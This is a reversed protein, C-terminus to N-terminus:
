CALRRMVSERCWTFGMRMSTSSRRSRWLASAGRRTNSRSSSISGRSRRLRSRRSPGWCPGCPRSSIRRRWGKSSSNPFCNMWRKQYPKVLKSQFREGEPEVSVRPVKVAVARSGLTLTREPLYGNRHGRGPEGREYRQRQLHEADEAELAAQLMQRAGLRVFAELLDGGSESTSFTLDQYPKNM